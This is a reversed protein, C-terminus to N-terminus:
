SAELSRKTAAWNLASRRSSRHRALAVWALAMAWSRASPALATGPMSITRGTWALATKARSGWRWMSARWCFQVKWTQSSSSLMTRQIVAKSVVSASTYAKRLSMLDVALQDGDRWHKGHFMVAITWPRLPYEGLSGRDDYWWP